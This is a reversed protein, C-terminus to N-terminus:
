WSSLVFQIRNQSLSTELHTLLYAHQEKKNRALGHTTRIIKWGTAFRCHTVKRARDNSGNIRAGTTCYRYKYEYTQLQYTTSLPSSRATRLVRTSLLGTSWPCVSTHKMDSRLKRTRASTIQDHRIWTSNTQQVSMMWKQHTATETV